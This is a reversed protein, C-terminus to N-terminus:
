SGLLQGVVLLGVFGGGLLILLLITKIMALTSRIAQLEALHPDVPRPPQHTPPPTIAQMAGVM